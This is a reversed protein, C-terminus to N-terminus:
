AVRARGTLSHDDGGAQAGDDVRVVLYVPEAAPNDVPIALAQAASWDAPEEAPRIVLEPWDAPAFDVRAAPGGANVRAGGVVSLSARTLAVRARDAPDAFRIVPTVEPQPETGRAPTALAAVALLLSLWWVVPVGNLLTRFFTAETDVGKSVARRVEEPNPLGKFYGAEDQPASWPLADRLIRFRI